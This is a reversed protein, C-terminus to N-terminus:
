DKKKKPHYGAKKLFTEMMQCTETFDAHNAIFSKALNILVKKTKPGFSVFKEPNESINWWWFESDQISSTALIANAVNEDLSHTEEKLEAALVNLALKARERQDRDSAYFSIRSEVLPEVLAIIPQLEAFFHYQKLAKAARIFYDGRNYEGPKPHKIRESADTILEQALFRGQDKDSFPPIAEPISYPPLLRSLQHYLIKSEASSFQQTSAIAFKSEEVSSCFRLILDYAKEKEGEIMMEELMLGGCHHVSNHLFTMGASLLGDDATKEAEIRTTALRQLSEIFERYVGERSPKERYYPLYFNLIKEVPLKDLIEEESKGDLVSRVIKDMNQAVEDGMVKQIDGDFADDMEFTARPYTKSMLWTIGALLHRAALHDLYQYKKFRLAELDDPNIDKSIGPKQIKPILSLLYVDAIDHPTLCLKGKLKEGIEPFTDYAEEATQAFGGEFGWHFYITKYLGDIQSLMKGIQKQSNHQELGRLASEEEM